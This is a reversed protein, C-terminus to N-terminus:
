SVDISMEVFQDVDELHWPVWAIDAVEEQSVVYVFSDHGELADDKEEAVLDPKGQIDKEESAVVLSGAHVSKEPEVILALFSDTEGDPFCEIFDKVHHGQTGGNLSLYEANM